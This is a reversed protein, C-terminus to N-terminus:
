NLPSDLTSDYELVATSSNGLVGFGGSEPDNGGIFYIKNNNGVVCYDKIGNHNYSPMKEWLELTTDLRYITIEPANYETKFTYIYDGQQVAELYQQETQMEPGESWSGSVVDLVNVSNTIGSDQAWGGLTYIADGITVSSLRDIELPLSTAESWSNTATNYVDVQNTRGSEELSGGVLYIKNGHVSVTASIRLSPISEGSSWAKTETNYIQILESRDGAIYDDARVKYGGIIYIENGISHAEAGWVFTPLDTEKIWKEMKTDFAYVASSNDQTDIGLGGFVYVKDGVSTCAQELTYNIPFEPKRQWPNYEVEISFAPLEADFVGDSVTLIINDYNGADENAPTGSLTGSSTNFDAWAPLNIVAFTLQDNDVDLASPTYLYETDAKVYASPIGFISPTDNIPLVNIQVTATNSIVGGQILYYSFQDIGNYDGAPMYILNPYEGSVLGSQPETVIYVSVDELNDNVQININGSDDEFIDIEQNELVIDNNSSSSDLENSSVSLGGGGGGGGCAVILLAVTGIGILKLLSPM